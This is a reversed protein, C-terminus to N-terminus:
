YDRRYILNLCIEIIRDASILVHGASCSVSDGYHWLIGCDKNLSRNVLNVAMDNDYTKGLTIYNDGNLGVSLGIMEYTEWTYPLQDVIGKMELVHESFPNGPPGTQLPRQLLLHCKGLMIWAVDSHKKYDARFAAKEAEIATDHTTEPCHWEKGAGRRRGWSTGGDQGGREGWWGARCSGCVRGEVGSGEVGM